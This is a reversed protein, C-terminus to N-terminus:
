ILSIRKPFDERYLIHPSPYLIASYNIFNLCINALIMLVLYPKVWKHNKYCQMSGLIPHLSWELTSMKQEMGVMLLNLSADAATETLKSM